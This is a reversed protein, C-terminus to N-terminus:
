GEFPNKKGKLNGWGSGKNIDSKGWCAVHVVLRTRRSGGPSYNLVNEFFRINIPGHMM